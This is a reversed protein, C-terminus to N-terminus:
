HLLVKTGTMREACKKRGVEGEESKTGIHKREVSAVLLFDGSLASFRSHM